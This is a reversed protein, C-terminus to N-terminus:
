EETNLEFLVFHATVCCAPTILLEYLINTPFDIIIIIIIFMKISRVYRKHTLFCLVGKQYVYSDWICM